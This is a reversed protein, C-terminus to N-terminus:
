READVQEAEIAWACSSLREAVLGAALALLALGAIREACERRGESLQHGVALGLRTVLIAQLAILGVVPLTPLRLLGLAVGIALEDLSVSLGLLVAGVGWSGALRRLREPDDDHETLARLGLGALVAAAAYEAVAGLDRGLPAGLALGVLPMGGEFAAFWLALRLRRRPDLGLAGIAAAIAFTDLGLPVVLAAFKLAM